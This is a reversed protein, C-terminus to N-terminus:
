PEWNLYVIEIVDMVNSFSHSYLLLQWFKRYLYGGERESSITWCYVPLYSTDLAKSDTFNTSCMDSHHHLRNNVGM